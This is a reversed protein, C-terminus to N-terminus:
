RRERGSLVDAFAIASAPRGSPDIDLARALAREVHSPLASHPSRPPKMGDAQRAGIEWLSGRGFPLEGTLMEYAIVGLSFVDARADVPEGRLQEPAMYAPTGLAMGTVTMTGLATEEDARDSLIKAVGFDLVKVSADGDLLLINEPKLDRHLV